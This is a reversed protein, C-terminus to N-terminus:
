ASMCREALKKDSGGTKGILLGAKNNHLDMEKERAPNSKKEEHVTTFQLADVFGIDRALIASWFCHRFADSKDTKLNKRFHKETESIAKRSADAIAAAHHPRTAIFHWERSNLQTIHAYASM